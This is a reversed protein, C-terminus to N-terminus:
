GRLRRRIEREYEPFYRGIVQLDYTRLISERSERELLFAFSAEVLREVPVHGEALRGFEDAAVTVLHTTAGPDDGVVVTCRWGNGEPDCQVHIADRDNMPPISRSVPISGAVNLKSPQREAL